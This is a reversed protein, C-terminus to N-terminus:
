PHPKVHDPPTSAPPGRREILRRQKNSPARKRIVGDGVRRSPTGRCPRRGTQSWGSTPPRPRTPSSASPTACGSAPPSCAAEGQGNQTPAGASIQLLRPPKRPWPRSSTPTTRAAPSCAGSRVRRAQAARRRRGQRPRPPRAPARLLRAAPLASPRGAAADVLAWRALVVSVQLDWRRPRTTWRCCCGQSSSRPRRPRARMAAGAEGPCGPRRRRLVCVM